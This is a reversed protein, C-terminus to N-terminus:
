TSGMVHSITPVHKLRIVWLIKITQQIDHYLNNILLSVWIGKQQSHLERYMLTDLPVGSERLPVSTESGSSDKLDEWRWSWTIMTWAERVKVKKQKRWTHRHKEQSTSMTQLSQVSLWVSFSIHCSFVLLFQFSLTPSSPHIVQFSVVTNSVAILRTLKVDGIGECILFELKRLNGTFLLHESCFCCFPCLTVICTYFCWEMFFLIKTRSATGDFSSWLWLM